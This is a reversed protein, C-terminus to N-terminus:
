DSEHSEPPKGRDSEEQEKEYWYAGEHWPERKAFGSHQGADMLKRNELFWATPTKRKKKRKKRHYIFPDPLRGAGCNKKLVVRLVRGRCPVRRLVLQRRKELLRIADDFELYRYSHLGRKVEQLSMSRGDESFFEILFKIRAAVQRVARKPDCSLRSFKPRAEPTLGPPEAVSGATTETKIEIM